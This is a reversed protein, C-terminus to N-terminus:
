PKAPTPSSNAARELEKLRERAQAAWRTEPALKLVRRDLDAAVSTQGLLEQCKAAALLAAAQWGGSCLTALSLYERSAAEYSKQYYFSEATMWQAMLATETASGAASRIVKRYLRRADDFRAQQALCRGLLYDASDQRPFDPFDREITAALRRADDWHGQRAAIEAQRLSIMGMWPEHKGRTETALQALRQAASVLDGKRYDEEALAFRAAAGWKTQPFERLLTTFAGRAAPWDGSLTALQGRLYLTAEHVPPDAKAALVEEVLAQAKGLEGRQGARQALRLTADAWCASRPYHEHLRELLRFGDEAKGQDLLIWARDYISEATDGQLPARPGNVGQETKPHKAEAIEALKREATLLGRRCDDALPGNPFQKIAERYLTAAAAADGKAAGIDGLYTLVYANLSDDPRAALFRELEPKAADYNRAFYAAEAARFAAARAHKGKPEVALYRQYQRRAEDFQGLRLRAEGLFLIADGRRRDAPFQKLFTEFEAAAPQWRRGDYAAAAAAFRADAQDARLAAPAALLAALAIGLSLCRPISNNV